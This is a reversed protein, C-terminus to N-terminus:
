VHVRKERIAWLLVEVRKPRGTKEFMCSWHKKVTLASIRLVAAIEKDSTHGDAVAQVIQLERPTLNM